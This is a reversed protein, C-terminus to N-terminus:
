QAAPANQQEDAPPASQPEEASPPTAPTDHEHEHGDGHVHEHSHEDAGHHHAGPMDLSTQRGLKKIVEQHNKVLQPDKLMREFLDLHKFYIQDNPDLEAARKALDRAKEYQQASFMTQAYSLHIEASDPMAAIARDYIRCTEEFDNDHLLAIAALEEYAGRLQPYIRTCEEFKARAGEIDNRHLCNDAEQFVAVAKELSVYSKYAPIGAAIAVAVVIILIVLEMKTKTSMPTKKDTDAAESM